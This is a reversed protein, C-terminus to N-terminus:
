VPGATTSVREAACASGLLDVWESGKDAPSRSNERTQHLEQPNVYLRTTEISRHGAQAQVAEFGHGGRAAPSVPTACNTAPATSCAPASKANSM